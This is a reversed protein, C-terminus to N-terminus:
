RAAKSWTTSGANCRKRGSNCRRRKRVRHLRWPGARGCATCWRSRGAFPARADGRGGVLQAGSPEDGGVLAAIRVGVHREASQRNELFEGADCRPSRGTDRPVQHLHAPLASCGCWADMMASAATSAARTGAPVQSRAGARGPARAARRPTPRASRSRLGARGRALEVRGEGRDREDGLVGRARGRLRVAARGLARRNPALAAQHAFRVLVSVHLLLFGSLAGFNVISALDDLRNAMVLAVALSIPSTVLM